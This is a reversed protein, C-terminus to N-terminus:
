DPMLASEPWDGVLRCQGWEFFELSGRWLDMKAKARDQDAEWWADMQDLVAYNEIEQWIELDQSGGLGFQSAYAQLSKTWPEARLDADGTERWWKTAEEWMGPKFKGTQVLYLKYSGM